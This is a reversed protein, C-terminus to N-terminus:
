FKKACYPGIGAAISKEDTLTAGCNCCVGYVHGFAKADELSMRDEPTIKRIAGGDFEFTAEGPGHVVLRKAYM